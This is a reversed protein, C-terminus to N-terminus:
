EPESDGDEDDHAKSRSDGELARQQEKELKRVRGAIIDQKNTMVRLVNLVCFFIVFAPWYFGHGAFWWIGTLVVAPGIAGSVANRRERQYEEVAMARLEAQSALALEQGRRVTQTAPVLDAIIPRLEGLTKARSTATSREDYEERDLRGDAYAEGLVRLVVDRDRDAARMPTSESRRPDHTFDAWPAADSSSM